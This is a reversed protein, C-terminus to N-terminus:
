LKVKKMKQIWGTPIALVGLHEPKDGLDKSHAIVVKEDTATVIWAITHISAPERSQATELDQWGSFACADIWHIEVADGQSFKSM